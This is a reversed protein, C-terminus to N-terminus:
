WGFMLSILLEWTNTSSLWDAALYLQEYVILLLDLDRM